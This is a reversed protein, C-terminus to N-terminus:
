EYIYSGNGLLLVGEDYSAQARTMRYEALSKRSENM